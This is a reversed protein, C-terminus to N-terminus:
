RKGTANGVHTPIFRNNRQELTVVVPTGWTRPSSGDNPVTVVCISWREGRAHPHVPALTGDEARRCANGVHTPIFRAAHHHACGVLRTGWTRPSSGGMDEASRGGSRREGRAHPHVPPKSSYRRQQGANGVHTPIFRNAPSTTIRCLGREGRAHPHVTMSINLCPAGSANGVHTPIFRNEAHARRLQFHTGWTRPSSGAHFFGPPSQVAREGRAHPHVTQALPHSRRTEMAVRAGAREAELLENLSGLVETGAIESVSLNPSGAVHGSM